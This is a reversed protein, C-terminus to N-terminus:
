VRYLNSPTGRVKRKWVRQYERVRTRNKNRYASQYKRKQMKLKHAYKYEGLALVLQYLDSAYLDTAYLGNDNPQNIKGYKKRFEAKLKYYNEM